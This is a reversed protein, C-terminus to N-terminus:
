FILNDIIVNSQVSVRLASVPISIFCRINSLYNTTRDKWVDFTSGNSYITLLTRKYYSSWIQYFYLNEKFRYSFTLRWNTTFVELTLKGEGVICTDCKGCDDPQYRYYEYEEPNCKIADAGSIVYVILVLLVKATM